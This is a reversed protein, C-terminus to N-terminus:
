SCFVSHQLCSTLFLFGERIPQRDMLLTKKAVQSIVINAKVEERMWVLFGKTTTEQPPIALASMLVFFVKFVLLFFVALKM